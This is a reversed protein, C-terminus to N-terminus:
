QNEDLCEECFLGIMDDIEAMRVGCESYLYEVFEAKTKFGWGTSDICEHCNQCEFSWAPTVDQAIEKKTKTKNM